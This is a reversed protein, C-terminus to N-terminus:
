DTRLGLMANSDGLLDNTPNRPLLQAEPKTTPTPYADNYGITCDASEEFPWTTGQPCFEYDHENSDGDEQQFTWYDIM